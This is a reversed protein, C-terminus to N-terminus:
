PMANNHLGSTVFQKWKKRPVTAGWCHPWMVAMGLLSMINQSPQKNTCFRCILYNINISYYSDVLFTSYKIKRRRQGSILCCLCADANQQQPSFFFFGLSGSYFWTNWLEEEGRTRWTATRLKPQHTSPHLSTSLPVTGEERRWDEKGIKVRRGKRCERCHTYWKDTLLNDSLIAM